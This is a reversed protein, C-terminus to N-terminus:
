GHGSPLPVRHTPLASHTHPRASVLSSFGPSDGLVLLGVTLNYGGGGAGGPAGGAAPARLGSGFAHVCGLAAALAGATPTRLRHSRRTPARSCLAADSAIASRGATPARWNFCTAEKETTTNVERCDRLHREIAAWHAAFPLPAHTARRAATAWAANSPREGREVMAARTGGRAPRSSQSYWQWDALGTRMHLALLPPASAAGLRALYPLMARQLWPRPRLVAWDAGTGCM